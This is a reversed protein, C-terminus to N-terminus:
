APLVERHGAVTREPYGAEEMLRMLDRMAGTAPRRYAVRFPAGGVSIDMWGTLVGDDSPVMDRVAVVQEPTLWIDELHTDGYLSLAGARNRPHLLLSGDDNLVIRVTQANVTTLM